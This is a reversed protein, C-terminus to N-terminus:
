AAPAKAVRSVRATKVASGPERSAASRTAGASVKAPAKRPKQGVKGIQGVQGLLYEVLLGV